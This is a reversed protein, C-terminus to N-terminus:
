KLPILKEIKDLLDKRKEILESVNTKALRKKEKFERFLNMWKYAVIGVFPLLLYIGLSIWFHHILYSDALIIIPINWLAMILMGLFMKVSSWFVPRKMVGESFIKVWKYPLYFHLLGLLAFPSLLILKSYIKAFNFTKKESLEFLYKEKVHLKKQQKFYSDLEEKLHVLEQNEDLLQANMRNALNKSNKWRQQLSVSFDTDDPDLGNRKLRTVHEHFFVWNKNEVHTLQEKLSNEIRKTVEIIAKVHSEKYLEEYDNLCFREGNSLLLDSGLVNPDGYNIGITSVYIKKKWKLSELAGFGIRAPGKKIPKLRRIFVDDTFGEGFILINRGFSLIKKCTNFTEQNKRKTDEGDHERYIPLMQASWFFPKTFANFVDSRTLFFVIPRQLVGIVLPDMFSSAHNCVYITRGYMRKPPRILKQRPYYIRLSYQLFVKLLFYILRM